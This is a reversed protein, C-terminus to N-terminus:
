KEEFKLTPVGAAIDIDALMAPISAQMVQRCAGHSVTTAPLNLSKFSKFTFPL